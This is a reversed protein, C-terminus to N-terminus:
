PLRDPRFVQVRQPAGVLTGHNGYGSKDYAILGDPEDLDWRGVLGDNNSYIGRYHEAIEYAPCARAYVRVGGIMGDWWESPIAPDYGIGGSALPSYNNDLLTASVDPAGNMYITTLRAADHTFAIHTHRKLAIGTLGYLPGGNGYLFAKNTNGVGAYVVGGLRNSLFSNQGTYTNRTIWAEITFIVPINVRALTIRQNVGNFSMMRRVSPRGGGGLVACQSVGLGSGLMAGRDSLPARM